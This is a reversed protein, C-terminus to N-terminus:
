SPSRESILQRLLYGRFALEEVLPAVVILGLMRFAVWTVALATSTSQLEAPWGTRESSPAIIDPALWVLFAVVGLGAAPWSWTWRLPGFYRHHIWLAALGIIVRLPYLPDIGTTFLGTLLSIAMMSVFPVLFIATPNWTDEENLNTAISIRRSRRAIVVLGVALACFLLWGAKTHFGGLAVDPSYYHGM